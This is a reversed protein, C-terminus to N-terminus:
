ETIITINREKRKQSIDGTERHRDIVFRIWTRHNLNARELAGLLTFTGTFRGFNLKL